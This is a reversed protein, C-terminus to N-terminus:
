PDWEKLVFDTRFTVRLWIHWLINCVCQAIKIGGQKWRHSFNKHHLGASQFPKLQEVGCSLAGDWLLRERIAPLHQGLPEPLCLQAKLATVVARLPSQKSLHRRQIPTLQRPHDESDTQTRLFLTWALFYLPIKGTTVGADSVPWLARCSSPLSGWIQGKRKTRCKERWFIHLLQNSNYM